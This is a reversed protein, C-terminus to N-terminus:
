ILVSFRALHAIANEFNKIVKAKHRFGGELKSHLMTHLIRDSQEVTYWLNQHAVYLFGCYQWGTNEFDRDDTKLSRGMKNEARSGRGEESKMPVLTNKILPLVQQGITWFEFSSSRSNEM